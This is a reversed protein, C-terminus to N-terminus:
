SVRCVGKKLWLPVLDCLGVWLKVKKNKELGFSQQVVSFVSLLNKNNLVRGVVGFFIIM